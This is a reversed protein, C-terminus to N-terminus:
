DHFLEVLNEATALDFRGDLQFFGVGGMATSRPSGVWNGFAMRWTSPLMDTPNKSVGFSGM